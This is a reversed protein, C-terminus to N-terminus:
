FTGQVVNDDLDGPPEPDPEPEPTRRRSRGRSTSRDSCEDCSGREHDAHLHGGAWRYFLAPQCEKCPYVTARASARKMECQRVAETHEAETMSGREPMPYTKVVYTESVDRWGNDCKDCGM